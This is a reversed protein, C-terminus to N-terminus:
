AGRGQPLGPTATAGSRWARWQLPVVGLTLVASGVFALALSGTLQQGLVVVVPALAFGIFSIVAVAASGEAVRDPPSLRTTQLIQVGNWASVSLGGFVVVAAVAAMPWGPSMAALALTALCSALGAGLLVPETRGSRDALWGMVPRGLLSAGQMLAFLAGAQALGFRQETALYTVLYTFWAGQGFALFAGSLGSRRLAPQRLVQQVSALNAPAFWVGLGLPQERDRGADVRRRVRQMLLLTLLGTAATAWLALNLGLWLVAGPLLLGALVSGLPVGSQKLSFAVGQHQPPAYRSLVVNSASSGPGSGVGILLSGLLVWAPHPLALMACGLVQLGMGWQLARLPGTRRILPMGLVLFLATGVTLLASLYGLQAPQWRLREAMLPALTPAARIILSCAVQWAFAALLPGLWAPWPQGPTLFLM